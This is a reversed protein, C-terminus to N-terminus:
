GIVKINFQFPNKGAGFTIWIYLMFLIILAGVIIGFLTNLNFRLTAKL